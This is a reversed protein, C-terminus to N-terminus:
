KAAPPAVQTLGQEFLLLDPGCGAAIMAWEVMLRTADIRARWQGPVRVSRLLALIGNESMDEIHFWGHLIEPLRAHANQAWAPLWFPFEPSVMALHDFLPTLHYVPRIEGM